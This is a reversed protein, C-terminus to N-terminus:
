LHNPLVWAGEPLRHVLVGRDERELRWGGHQAEPDRERDRGVRRTGQKNWGPGVERALAGMRPVGRVLGLPAVEGEGILVPERRCGDVDTWAVAHQEVTMESM